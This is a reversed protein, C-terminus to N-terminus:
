PLSANSSRPEHPRFPKSRGSLALLDRPGATGLTVRGLLRDLDQVHGLSEALRGRDVTRFALEEVADLRDQIREVEVLPRLILERLLRAGMPTATHDLVDLLTGRRSGDVLNEVLELNRRTLADLVLV